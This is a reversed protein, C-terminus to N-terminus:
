YQGSEVISVAEDDSRAVGAAHGLQIMRALFNEQEKTPKKGPQKTEIFAVCKNGIFLLDSFGKPLGDVKRLNILVMQNFEKSYVREGQWFEGSNTRFVVGYKSLAIRISNQIVSERM